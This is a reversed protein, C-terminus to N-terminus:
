SHNNRNLNLLPSNIFPKLPDPTPASHTYYKCSPMSLNLIYQELVPLYVPTIKLKTKVKSDQCKFPM